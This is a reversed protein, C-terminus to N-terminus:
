AWFWKRALTDSSCFYLDFIEESTRSLHDQSRKVSYNLNGEDPPNRWVKFILNYPSNGWFLTL